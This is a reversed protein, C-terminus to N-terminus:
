ECDDSRFTKGGSKYFNIFALTWCITGIICMVMGSVRGLIAIDSATAANAIAEYAFALFGMLAAFIMGGVAAAKLIILQVPDVGEIKIRM